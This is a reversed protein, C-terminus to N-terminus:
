IGLNKCACNFVPINRISQTLLVEYARAKTSHGEAEEILRLTGDRTRLPYIVDSLDWLSDHPVLCTPCVWGSKSGLISAARSSIYILPLIMECSLSAVSAEDYDVSLISLVLQAACGSASGDNFVFGERGAATIASRLMELIGSHYVYARHDALASPDDGHKGPVEFFSLVIAYLITLLWCVEPLFGLLIASGKGSTRMRIHKPINGIWAWVGWVKKRSLKDLRSADSYLTM